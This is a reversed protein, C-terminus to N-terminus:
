GSGRLRRLIGQSARTGDAPLPNRATQAARFSVMAQRPRNNWGTVLTLPPTDASTRAAVLFRRGDPTVDIEDGLPARFLPQPASAELSTGNPRLAVALVTGDRQRYILEKGGVTWQPYRWEAGSTSIQQRAGPADFRTVYVEARGSEDSVFAVWKGDPSFTPRGEAFPTSLLAYPKRDGGTMPVVWVDAGTATLVAGREVLLFRGDSSWDSPISVGHGELLLTDPGSGDAARVYTDFVVNHDVAYALRKGDPSWVPLVENLPHTTLRRRSGRVLDCIWLDAPDGIEAAVYRGDPSISLFRWLAPDGAINDTITGARDRWQLTAELTAGPPAFVVTGDNSAAFVGRFFGSEYHVSDALRRAEGTLKRSSADFPQALLNNDRVFLLHGAAYIVNSRARMLLTREKSKLSAAYIANLESKSDALHTGALYLYHEGDPLFVPFRHTTESQKEDLATLPESTGGSAKVRHLPGRWHPAFIITGDPGWAGGRADSTACIATSPGGAIDVRRLKGNSFYALSRSDPSWFPYTANVVDLPRAELSDIARLWTKREGTTEDMADFTIWKGDPSITVSGCGDLLVDFQHGEPASIQSRIEHAAAAPTRRLLAVALAAAALLLAIAIAPWMRERRKRKALLPAAVGAGSGSEAIWRLEAAVDHASQWREDPDKRLCNQVLREFSPPTMPQLSSIPAPDRELITAIVSARSRGDFARKGTAMEYLVAGLSFIDTRADAARGELQEPAMYQFTGVITGEQTLPRQQTEQQMAFTTADPTFNAPSSKALGFDLLKAGSRTLMINGPKLDRHVIGCRHAKELAEAVQAGIRIVQEIPLPGRTLRDALSEGELLELVLYDRGNEHGVDYLTCINPHTLGSIAKAEREFRLRLQANQSFEAPLVKIAVHRDLRTDIARYVEGM